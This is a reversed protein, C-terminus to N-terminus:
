KAQIPDATVQVAGAASITKDTLPWVAAVAPTRELRELTEMAARYGCEIAVHFRDFMLSGIAGLNPQILLDVAARSARRQEESGVTGSCMLIDIISPIGSRRNRLQWLLSKEEIDAVKAALSLDTGVDIGIVPGRGLARMIDTPFNNMIGGDVLVEGDEVSPPVIGPIAASARVARWVLGRRHICAQGTSLNASVCFLGKWLNEITRDGFALRLLRSMNRGRYLSVLPLTYDNLPKNQVFFDHFMDGIRGADEAMATTAAVIAGMSTGGVLDIPIRAAHLARIVGIHAFARAGGGSFVVGVARGMALRAARAFDAASGRRIHIIEQPEFSGLWSGAGDARAAGAPSLLVLDAARHMARAAAIKRVAEEDPASTAAAFFIVRDAQGLCRASWPSSRDDAVYLVVDHQAEFAEIAERPSTAAAAM